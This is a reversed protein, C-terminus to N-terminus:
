QHLRQHQIGTLHQLIEGTPFHIPPIIGLYYFSRATPWCSSDAFLNMIIMMIEPLNTPNLQFTELTTCVAARLSQTADDRFEAFRPCVTFLHHPTEFCQCNFRCWP